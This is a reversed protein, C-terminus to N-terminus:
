QYQKLIEAVAKPNLKGYYKDNVMMAPSLFCTGLCAVTELSFALDETTEGDEIGLEKEVAERIASGGRIHCATGRCVKITNRGHPTLYFQAYFTAVEYVQSKPVRLHGAVRDLVPVPLYGYIKQANQLLPILLSENNAEYDELLLELEAFEIEEETILDLAM